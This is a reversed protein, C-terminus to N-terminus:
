VINEKGVIVLNGRDTIKCDFSQTKLSLSIHEEQAIQVINQLLQELRSQFKIYDLDFEDGGSQRQKDLINKVCDISDLSLTIHDIIERENWQQKSLM